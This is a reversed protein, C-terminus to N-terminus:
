ISNLVAIIDDGYKTIKQGGSVFGKVKSLEDVSQPKIKTITMLETNHAVVYSPVNLESAKDQRWERLVDYINKEEETLETESIVANKESNRDQRNTKQEEYFVLISWFNPQGNILETVTKKVVVNDLFSNLTDQDIQLNEKNLRIYFHKIKM